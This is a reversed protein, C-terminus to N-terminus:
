MKLSEETLESDNQLDRDPKINLKNLEDHYLKVAEDSKLDNEIVNRMTQVITLQNESLNVKRGFLAVRAGYKCAQRLLEFCDRSTGKGGGLIGIVLNGPDYSALEEMAKPGNYAIKLFLPKEKSIQGALTKLICDNVYEGMDKISLKMTASNFVELFHRMGIKEAEDRFERYKNLMLVDRDVNKNFTMSYLGLDVFNIAHRLQTTSFPRSEEKDYEGHRLMGWICSTDNLRVAPTVQSNKFLDKNVLKEASTMSMLMVDVMESKTMEEMKNLYSDYSAPKDTLKGNEERIYGPARRGGGMDADKADAIIFDSPKYNSNRINKLKNDLAKM